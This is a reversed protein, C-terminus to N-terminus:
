AISEMEQAHEKLIAAAQSVSLGTEDLLESLESLQEAQKERYLDELEAQESKVRIQLSAILEEKATIREDITKKPGRAM